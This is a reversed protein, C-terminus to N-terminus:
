DHDTGLKGIKRGKNSQGYLGPMSQAEGLLSEMIAGNRLAQV